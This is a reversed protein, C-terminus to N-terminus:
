RWSAAHDRQWPACLNGSLREITITHGEVWGRERLGHRFADHLPSPESPAPPFNLDLFAIRPVHGPRQAAAVLPLVLTTLVLLIETLLKTGWVVYCGM